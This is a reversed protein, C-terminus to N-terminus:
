SPRNSWFRFTFDRYLLDAARDYGDPRDIDPVLEIATCSRGSVSLTKGVVQRMLATGIMDVGADSTAVVRVVWTYRRDADFTNVMSKRADDIRDPAGSKAVVYNDRVTAGSSDRRVTTVIKDALTPDEAMLAKFAAFELEM